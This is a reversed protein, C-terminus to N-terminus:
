TTAVMVCHSYPVRLKDTTIYTQVQKFFAKALEEYAERTRVNQGSDHNAMWKAFLHQKEHYVPDITILMGESSLLPVCTELMKSTQVDNLHHLIGFGFIYDFQRQNTDIESAVNGVKFVIKESGYKQNAENIHDLNWDLGLYSGCDSLTDIWTGPGCGLELVTKNCIDSFFENKFENRSSVGGLANQIAKYLFPLTVLKYIGSTKEAMKREIRSVGVIPYKTKMELM